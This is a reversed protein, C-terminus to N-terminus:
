HNLILVFVESEGFGCGCGLTAGITLYHPSAQMSGEHFPKCKSVLGFSSSPGPPTQFVTRAEQSLLDPRLMLQWSCASVLQYIEALWHM